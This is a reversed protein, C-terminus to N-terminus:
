YINGKRDLIEGIKNLAMLREGTYNNRNGDIKSNGKLNLEALSINDKLPTIDVIQNNSLDLIKLYKLKEISTITNIENNDVRLETLNTLREIGEVKDIKNKAGRITLNILSIPLEKIIKYDYEGGAYNLSLTKLIPLKKINMIFDKVNNDGYRLEIYTLENLNSLQMFNKINTGILTITHLKSCNEIGEITKIKLDQIIIKELNPFFVLDQLSNVNPDAITLSTQNKMWKFKMEDEAVGSIKSVYESFAKSSFRIETEDELVKNNLNDGM